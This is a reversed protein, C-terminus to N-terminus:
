HSTTAAQRLAFLEVVYPLRVRAAPPSRACRPSSRRRRRPISGPSTARRCRRARRPRRRRVRARRPHGGASRPAAPAAADPVARLQGHRAGARRQPPARHNRPLSGARSRVHRRRAVGRRAPRGARARARDRLARARSRVLPIGTGGARRRRQRHRAPAGRRHRRAGRDDAACTRAAGADRRGTRGRRDAAHLRLAAADPAGDGCRPRAAAHREDIELHAILWDLAAPPFAPRAREYVDAADAFSRASPHIREDGAVVGTVGRRGAHRWARAGRPCGRLARRARPVALLQRLRARPRRLVRGLRSRRRARRLRRAQDGPAVRAGREAGLAVLEGVGDQDISAFPNREIVGDELYTALFTNEADDRSLGITTQTLDNTGFSFFDASEALEGARLAARPLEIM